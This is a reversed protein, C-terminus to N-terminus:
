EYDTDKEKINLEFLDESLFKDNLVIDYNDDLVLKLEYKFGTKNDITNLIFETINEIKEEQTLDEEIILYDMEIKIHELFEKRIDNVLLM